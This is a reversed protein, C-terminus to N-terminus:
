YNIKRIRSICFFTMMGGMFLIMDDVDLVGTKTIFQLIEVGATVLLALMLYRKGEVMHFLEILFFGLPM